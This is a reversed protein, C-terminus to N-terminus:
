ARHLSVTSIQGAGAPILRSISRPGSSNRSDAGCGRPHAWAQWQNRPPSPIQGAGAPILREEQPLVGGEGFRGRVRPSSGDRRYQWTKNKLDAGCGRPHARTQLDGYTHRIIQGAGAPILRAPICGALTAVYRGRVRPSSCVNSDLEVGRAM